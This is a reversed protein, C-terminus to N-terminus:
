YLDQITRVATMIFVGIEQSIVNHLTILFVDGGDEPGFM